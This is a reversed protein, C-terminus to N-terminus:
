PKRERARLRRHALEARKYALNAAAELPAMAAHAKSGRLAVFTHLVEHFILDFLKRRSTGRRAWLHIEGSPLHFFGFHGQRQVRALMTKFSIRGWGGGVHSSATREVDGWLEEMIGRATSHWTVHLAHVRRIPVQRISAV